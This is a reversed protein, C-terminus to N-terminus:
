IQPHVVHTVPLMQPWLNFYEHEVPNRLLLVVQMSSYSSGEEELSPHPWTISQVYCKNIYM